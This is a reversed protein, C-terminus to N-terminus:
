ANIAIEIPVIASSQTQLNRLEEVQLSELYLEIAEKINFIAEEYSDGQSVCGELEPVYAFYGDKDKQIISNFTM